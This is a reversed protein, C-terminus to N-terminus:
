ESPQKSWEADPGCKGKQEKQKQHVKKNGKMEIALNMELQAKLKSIGNRPLLTISGNEEKPIHKKNWRRYKQKKCKM